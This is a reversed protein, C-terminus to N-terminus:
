LFNETEFSPKGNETQRKGYRLVLTKRLFIYPPFAYRMGGLLFNETKLKGNATDTKLTKVVWTQGLFIYPPFAYRM